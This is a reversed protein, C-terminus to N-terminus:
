LDSNMLNPNRIIDEFMLIYSNHSTVLRNILKGKAYLLLLKAVFSKRVKESITFLNIMSHYM